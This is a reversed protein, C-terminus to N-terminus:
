GRWWELWRRLLGRPAAANAIAQVAEAEAPYLSAEERARRELLPRLAEITYDCVADTIEHAYADQWDPRKPRGGLDIRWGSVEIRGGSMDLRGPAVVTVRPPKRTRTAIM